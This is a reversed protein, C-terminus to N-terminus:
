VSCRAVGELRQNVRQMAEILLSEDVPHCYAGGWAKCRGLTELTVFRTQGHQAKKDRSLLPLIQSPNLPEFRELLHFTHLLETLREISKLDLDGLLVSLEAAVLMGAAVAFGHFLRYDSLRELAHGVTHGFNLQRRQGILECRDKEVVGQKIRASEQLLHGLAQADRALLAPRQAELWAFLPADAIAAHKIVEAFGEHFREDPLSNLFHPDLIVWEASHIAGILNKGHVTNVGTKGGIAADCMALLSTPVNVLRIGRLLTAAVFGALDTTVGGGLALIRDEREIGWELLANELQEKHSRTKHEEGAPFSFLQTRWGQSRFCACLQRGYLDAVNRDSIIAISRSHAEFPLQGTAIFKPDIRVQTV